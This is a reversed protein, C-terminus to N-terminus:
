KSRCHLIARFDGVNTLTPGTVVLDGIAEFFRFANNNALEAQPDLGLSHARSLTDPTIMAGANSEVGDIGDTDCAIAHVYPDGDLAIALALLFETNRGGRGSGHVTVSTEGGSLFLCPSAIPQDCASIQKAIEAHSLAVERAEGEVADGLLFPTIGHERAVAAAADLATRSSAIVHVENKEFCAAGSKPTEAEATRLFTQVAPSVEVRYKKLIALADATTTPDPVTPGSAIVSPDDGPVDSIAFTVVKAPASALALRGGKIASLHKRVCNFERISAGSKLLAKAIRQKDELGIGPAPLALLASGGGSLLCIVLDNASLGSLSQKIEKAASFGAADPVPHGAEIVRIKSTPAGHGYRTVVVGILDGRWHEEVAGAMSAAAKGAGVVVTRGPPPAPLFAPLCRRPDTAAIAADFASRLLKAADSSTM